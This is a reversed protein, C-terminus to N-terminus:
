LFLEFGDIESIFALQILWQFEKDIVMFDRGYVDAFSTYLCRLFSLQDFIAIKKGNKSKNWTSLGNCFM